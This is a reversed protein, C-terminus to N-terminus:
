EMVVVKGLYDNASIKKGDPSSFYMWGYLTDGAYTSPLKFVHTLKSRLPGRHVTVFKRKLPSYFVITALDLPTSGASLYESAEWGISVQSSAASSVLFAHAGDLEDGISINILEYDLVFSPYVGTVAKTLISQMAVNLSTVSGKVDQYGMTVIHNIPKLFSGALEFKLRQTLQATTPAKSSPEPLQKLVNLGKWMAAVTNGVRGKLNGILAGRFTGM